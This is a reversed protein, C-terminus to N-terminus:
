SVESPPAGYARNGSEEADQSRTALWGHGRPRAGRRPPQSRRVNPIARLSARSVPCSWSVSGKRAIAMGNVGLSSPVRQVLAGIVLYPGTVERLSSQALKPRSVEAVALRGLEPLLEVTWLRRWEYEVSPRARTKLEALYLPVLDAVSKAERAERRATDKEAAPDRGSAVHGLLETAARRTQDLSLLRLSRGYATSLTRQSAQVSRRLGESWGQFCTDVGASFPVSEVPHFHSV